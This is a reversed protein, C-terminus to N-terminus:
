CMQQRILMTLREAWVNVAGCDGFFDYVAVVEGCDEGVEGVVVFAASEEDWGCVEFWFCSGDDEHVAVELVFYLFAPAAPDDRDGM